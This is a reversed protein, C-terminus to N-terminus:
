DNYADFMADSVWQSAETEPTVMPEGPVGDYCQLDTQPTYQENM